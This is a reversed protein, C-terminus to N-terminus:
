CSGASGISTNRLLRENDKAILATTDATNKDNLPRHTSRWWSQVVALADDAVSFARQNTHRQCAFYYHRMRHLKTMVDLYDKTGNEMPEFVVEDLLSEECAAFFRRATVQSEVLSTHFLVLARLSPRYRIMELLAEAQSASLDVCHFMRLEMLKRCSKQLTTITKDHSSSDYLEVCQVAPIKELLFNRQQDAVGGFFVLKRPNRRVIRQCIEKWNTENEALEHWAEATGDFEVSALRRPNECIESLLGDLTLPVAWLAAKVSQTQATLRRCDESAGLPRHWFFRGSFNKQSGLLSGHRRKNKQSNKGLM